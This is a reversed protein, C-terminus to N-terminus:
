ELLAELHATVCQPLYELSYGGELCSVLRGQCHTQAAQKVLKTLTIFDSVDLGLSGIPDHSHADFGASLLIVDPKATTMAKELHHEFAAHYEELTIGFRLPVNLTHGLGSGTGTESALGTGPYFPYRHLSLFTVREDDYFADQTGNGHHVDWDIILVREAGQRQATRAALAINNFLCFGMSTSPTAHHGPPRVLCFATSDDGRLVAEVAQSCAGAALLGVDFSGASLYTDAEIQGGGQQSTAQVLAAVEPAHVLSIDEVALPKSERMTCRTAVNQFPQHGTIAEYRAPCEPHGRGTLHDVFRSHQYLLTMCVM